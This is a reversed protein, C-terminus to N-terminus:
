NAQFRASRHVHGDADIVHDGFILYGFRHTTKLLADRATDGVSKRKRRLDDLLLPAYAPRHVFLTVALATLLNGGNKGLGLMSEFQKQLLRIDAATLHFDNSGLAEGALARTDAAISANRVIQLLTAKISNDPQITRMEGLIRKDMPGCEHRAIRELSARVFEALPEAMPHNPYRSVTRLILRLAHVAETNSDSWCVQWLLPTDPYNVPVFPISSLIHARVKGDPETFLLQLAQNLFSFDIVGKLASAAARRLSEHGVNRDSLIDLIRQPPQPLPAGAVADFILELIRTSGSVGNIHAVLLDRSHPEIAAYGDMTLANLLAAVLGPARKVDTSQLSVLTSALALAAQRGGIKGLTEATAVSLEEDSASLLPVLREVQSYARASGLDRLAGIREAVATESTAVDALAELSRPSSFGRAPLGIVWSLLPDKSLHPDLQVQRLGLPLFRYIHEFLRVDPNKLDGLKELLYAPDLELLSQLDENSFLPASNIRSWLVERVDRGLAHEGGDRVGAAALVGALCRISEGAQDPASLLARMVTCFERPLPAGSSLLLAGAFRGEERWTRSLVYRKLWPAKGGSGHRVAWQAALYEQLRLHVFAFSTNTIGTANFFRSRGAPSDAFEAPKQGLDTEPEFSVRKRAGGFSLLHALQEIREMGEQTLRDEHSANYHSRILAVAESLVWVPSVKNPVPLEPAAFVVECLLTLLYPNGALPWLSPNHEILKLLSPVLNGRERVEGYRVCLEAVAQDTLSGIAFVQTQRYRTLSSAANLRTTILVPAHAALNDIETLVDARMDAPVEDWGDLLYVTGLPDSADTLAQVEGAVPTRRFISTLAYHGLGTTRDKRLAQAFDQLGVPIPTTENALQERLLYACIWKVLTTKGSGPPGIIVTRGISKALLLLSEATLYHRAGASQPVERELVKEPRVFFLEVYLNEVGIEIDPGTALIPRISLWERRKQLDQRYRQLLLRTRARPGLVTTVDATSEREQQFVALLRQLGVEFDGRFDAYVRDRLLTPLECDEILVPLVVVGKGSLEEMLTANLEAQVWRSAVSAKSLVAVVYGANRLGESVGSVISYGVQLEQEDIWVHLNHGRLAKVLKRAFPKDRASHSVFVRAKSDTPM